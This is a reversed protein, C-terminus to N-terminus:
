ASNKRSPLTSNILNMGTEVLPNKVTAVVPASPSAQPGSVRAGIQPRLYPNIRDAAETVTKLENVAAEALVVSLAQDHSKVVMRAIAKALEPKLEKLGSDALGKVINGYELTAREWMPKVHKDIYEQSHNKSILSTALGEEQLDTIAASWATRSESAILRTERLRQREMAARSEAQLRELATAPDRELDDARRHVQDIRELIKKADEAGLHDLEGRSNRFQKAIHENREAINDIALAEQLKAASINYDEALDTLEDALQNLPEAIERQYEPSGKLNHIKEYVELQQIREQKSKFVEPLVEGKEYAELKTKTSTLQEELQKAQEQKTKALTKLKKFNERVAQKAVIKDDDESDLLAQIEDEPTQEVPKDTPELAPIDPTFNADASDDEPQAQPEVVKPPEVVPNEVTVNKVIIAPEKVVPKDVPPPEKDPLGKGTQILENIYDFAPNSM